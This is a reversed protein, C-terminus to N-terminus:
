KSFKAPNRKTYDGNQYKGKQSKSLSNVKKISKINQNPPDLGM